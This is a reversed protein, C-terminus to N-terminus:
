HDGKLVMRMIRANFVAFRSLQIPISQRRRLTQPTPLPAMSLDAVPQANPPNM